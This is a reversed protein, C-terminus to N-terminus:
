LAAAVAGESEGAADLVHNIAAFLEGADVPKMVFANMGAGQCLAVDGPTVSATLAIIPADRNPGPSRRLREAAELGGMRPMNLDMLIVDFRENALRQLAEIGDDATTVEVGASELMLSFARRNIQHDDAVLVKLRGAIETEPIPAARSIAMPNAIAVAAATQLPLTLTFTAGQGPRSTADLDGGMLRALQRSINLGLGTGGHTRATAAGLQDFATFLRGHQEATLGPGTDVVQATLM